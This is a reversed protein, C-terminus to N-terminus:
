GNALTAARLCDVVRRPDCGNLGAGWTANAELVAWQGRILAVDLVCTRPQSLASLSQLFARPDGEGEYVAFTQLQGHLFFGRAEAQIPVVEAGLVATAPDLGRCEAQLQESSGYVGARFQKPVLPKVFCPYDFPDALTQSWLRRGLWGPDLTLLWDDPPSVLQLELLQALVLCFTDHGYLTVPGDIVPPEWFRELRVVPGSWCDAVRDREPDRKAPILLTGLPSM